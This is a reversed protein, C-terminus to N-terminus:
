GCPDVSSNSGTVLGPKAILWRSDDTWALMNIGDAPHCVAFLMGPTEVEHRWRDIACQVLSKLSARDCLSGTCANIIVAPNYQTLRDAFEVHAPHKKAEREVQWIWKWVKDRVTRPSRGRGCCFPVAQGSSLQLHHFFHMSAQYPVPNSLIFRYSGDDLRGKLLRGIHRQICMGTRGNAPALPQLNGNLYSYEREHPSELVLVISPREGIMSGLCGM